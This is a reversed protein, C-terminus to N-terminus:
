IREGRNQKVLTILSIQQPITTESPATAVNDRACSAAAGLTSITGFFVAGAVGFGVALTSGVM